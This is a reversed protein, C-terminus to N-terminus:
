QSWKRRRSSLFSNGRSGISRNFIGIKESEIEVDTSDNVACISAMTESGKKKCPSNPFSATVQPKNIVGQGNAVMIQAGIAPIRASLTLAPNNPPIPKDIKAQPRNKSLMSVGSAVAPSTM